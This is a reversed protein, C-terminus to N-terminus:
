YKCVNIDNISSDDLNNNAIFEWFKHFNEFMELEVNNLFNLVIITKISQLLMIESQLYRLLILYRFFQFDICCNLWWWFRRCFIWLNSDKRILYIFFWFFLDREVHDNVFVFTFFLFEITQDVFKWFNSFVFFEDVYELFM